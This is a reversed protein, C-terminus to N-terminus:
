GLAVLLARVSAVALVTVTLIFGGARFPNPRAIRMGLPHMIRAIVLAAALGQVLLTAGTRLEILGILLLALPVYEAFNAQCRVAIFLKNATDEAGAGLLVKGTFRGAVVQASLVAFILGLVAAALTTVIPPHLNTM